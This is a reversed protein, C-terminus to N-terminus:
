DTESVLEPRKALGTVALAFAHIEPLEQEIKVPQYPRCLLICIRVCRWTCIWHCIWHCSGQFETRDLADRVIICDRALTGKEVIALTDPNKLLQTIAASVQLLTAVLHTCGIIYLPQDSNCLIDCILRCRVSCIWHCIYHCHQVVGLKEVIARFAIEDRETVAGVLRGLVDHDSTLKATLEAFERLNLQPAEKPPPGCLEFCILTCEKSCLWNCVLHCRDLLGFRTVLDRFEEHDQARFSDVLLRFSTEDQAIKELAQATQTVDLTLEQGTIENM